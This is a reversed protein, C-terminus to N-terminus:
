SKWTFNFLFLTLNLLPTLRKEEPTHLFSLINFVHLYSLKPSASDDLGLKLM